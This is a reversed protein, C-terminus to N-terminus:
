PNMTLSASGLRNRRSRFMSPTPCMARSFTCTSSAKATYVCSLIYLSNLVSSMFSKSKDVDDSESTNRPIVMSLSLSPAILITCRRYTSSMTAVNRPLSSLGAFVGYTADHFSLLSIPGCVSAALFSIASTGYLFSTPMSSCRALQVLGSMEAATPMRPLHLALGPVLCQFAPRSTTLYM